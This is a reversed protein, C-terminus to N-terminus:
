VFAKYLKIAIGAVSLGASIFFWWHCFKDFDSTAFVPKIGTKDTTKKIFHTSDTDVHKKIIAASDCKCNTTIRGHFIKVTENARGNRIEKNVASDISSLFFDTGVTETDLKITDYRIAHHIVLSDRTTISTRNTIKPCCAVVMGLVIALITTTKM